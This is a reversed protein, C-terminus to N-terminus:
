PFQGIVGAFTKALVGRQEHTGAIQGAADMFIELEVRAGGSDGRRELLDPFFAATDALIERVEADGAQARKSQRRTIHATIQARMRRFALRTEHTRVRRVCPKPNKTGASAPHIKIWRVIDLRGLFVDDDGVAAVKTVHTGHGANEGAAPPM